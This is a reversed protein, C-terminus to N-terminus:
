HVEPPDYTIQIRRHGKGSTVRWGPQLPIWQRAHPTGPKGREAIPVGNAKILMRGDATHELVIDPDMTQDERTHGGMSASAM